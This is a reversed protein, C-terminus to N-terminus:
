EEDPEDHVPGDGDLDVVTGDFTVWWSMQKERRSSDAHRTSLCLALM